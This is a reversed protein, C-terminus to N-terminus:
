TISVVTLEDGEVRFKVEKGSFVFGYIRNPDSQYAPRPDQALLEILIERKDTPLKSLLEPAVKVNLNGDLSQLAFGCTAESHSDTYALYPKIDYLPTGDMLDAGGVYLIPGEPTNLEVKLLKVSSLGIPNPRFPSRTAFVGVRKNGGLKPPRITPSWEEREAESFKWILWLHSFGELGRFAEKVRYEHEFVVKAVTDVIGSQRPIGFKTSFDTRVYAIIRM